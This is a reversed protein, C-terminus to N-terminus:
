SNNLSKVTYGLNVNSYRATQQLDDNNLNLKKIWAYEM